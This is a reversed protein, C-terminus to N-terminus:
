TSLKVAVQVWNDEQWYQSEERFARRKKLLVLQEAKMKDLETSRVPRVALNAARDEYILEVEGQM